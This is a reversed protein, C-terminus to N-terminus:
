GHDKEKELIKERVVRNWLLAAQRSTGQWHDQRAVRVQDIM